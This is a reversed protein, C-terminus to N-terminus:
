LIGHKEIRNRCEEAGWVAILYPLDPGHTQGSLAARLPMYVDKAKLGSGKVVGKILAKLQDPDATDTVAAAFAALVAPAAPSQLVERAEESLVPPAFFVEMEKNIDALCVLRSRLAETILERKASELAAWQQAYPGLHIFPQLLAMLEPLTKQKLHQQNVFNLKNMDFVAPSKSVRELDFLPVIEAPSLIEEGGAPSWGLLALFNFMAEPLYGMERYQILSTAGHRKSMKQRDEGLILSIHAFNPPTLNLAEYLMLQRPTNSLHEEARMILTIDMLYDDIVVAFNYTPIGDSKCIIFDGEGNSEFSVRGRVLDNVVYSKDAPVAFRVVPKQGAAMRERVQAASLGRCKGSYRPTEGASKLKEREDELEAESCFCYYASGDGLLKDLYQRYIDLRETQRYPGGAGGADPGEQWSVGLWHLSEIIETEYERRSREMDTDEVRLVLDGGQHAAYLYNFLASRAGGIHLPGTPSPAFRVKTKKM